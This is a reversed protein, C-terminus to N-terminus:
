NAESAFITDFYGQLDLGERHLRLLFENKEAVEAMTEPRSAFIADRIGARQTFAREAMQEAATIGYAQKAADYDAEQRRLEAILGDRKAEQAAVFHAQSPCTRWGDISIAFHREVDHQYSSAWQGWTIEGTEPDRLRRKGYRVEISPLSAREYLQEVMEDAAREAELALDHDAILEAIASMESAVAATATPLALAAASGGLVARRSLTPLGIAAARVAANPM